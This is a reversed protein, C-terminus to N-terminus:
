DSGHRRWRTLLTRLARVCLPHPARNAPGRHQGVALAHPSRETEPGPRLEVTSRQGCVELAVIWCRGSRVHEAYIGVCHGLARGEAALEAGTRLLRACRAPQWWTPVACLPEHQRELEREFRRALRQGARAFTARVSPRLDAPELEDLRDVYRGTIEQDGLRETRERLLARQQAPNRWRDITWYIVELPASWLQSVPLDVFQDLLWLAPHEEYRAERWWRAADPPRLGTAAVPSCGLVVQHHPMLAVRALYAVTQPPLYDCYVAEIARAIPLQATPSAARLDSLCQRLTRCGRRSVDGLETACLAELEAVLEEVEARM